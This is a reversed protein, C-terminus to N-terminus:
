IDLEEFLASLGIEAVEARAQEYRQPDWIEIHDGAGVIVVERDIGREARLEDPVSVRGQKDVEDSHAFSYLERIAARHRSSAKSQSQLKAEYENRAQGCWVAICPDPSPMLLVKSEDLEDRLRSPLILRGKADITHRYRGTFAM